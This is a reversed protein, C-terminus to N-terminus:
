SHYRRNKREAPCMLSVGECSQDFCSGNDLAAASQILNHETSNREESSTLFSSLVSTLHGHPLFLDIPLASSNLGPEDSSDEPIPSRKGLAPRGNSRLGWLDWCLAAMDSRAVAGCVNIPNLWRQLVEQKVFSLFVTDYQSHTFSM